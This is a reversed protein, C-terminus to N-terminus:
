KIPRKFDINFFKNIEVKFGFRVSLFFGKEIEYMAGWDPIKKQKFLFVQFLKGNLRAYDKMLRIGYNWNTDNELRYLKMFISINYRM